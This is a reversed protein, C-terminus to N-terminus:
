PTVATPHQQYKLHHITTYGFHQSFLVARVAVSAVPPSHAPIIEDASSPLLSFSSFFLHCIPRSSPPSFQINPQLQNIAQLSSCPILFTSFPSFPVSQTTEGPPPQSTASVVATGTRSSFSSPSSLSPPTRCTQSRRRWDTCCSSLDVSAACSPRAARSRLLSLRSGVMVSSQPKILVSAARLPTESFRTM